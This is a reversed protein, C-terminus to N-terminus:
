RNTYCYTHWQTQIYVGDGQRFQAQFVVNEPLVPGNELLYRANEYCRESPNQAAKSWSGGRYCGYQHPQSVVGEMTDPYLHHAIRNLVVSGVYLQEQDDCGLAEGAIVRALMDLEEQTYTPEEKEDQPALSEIQPAKETHAPEKDVEVTEVRGAGNGTTQQDEAIAPGAGLAILLITTILTRILLSGLNRACKRHNWRYRKRKM